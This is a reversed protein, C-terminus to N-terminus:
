LSSHIFTSNWSYGLIIDLLVSEKRDSIIWKWNSMPSIASTNIKRKILSDKNRIAQVWNDMDSDKIKRKSNWATKMYILYSLMVKPLEQDEEEM